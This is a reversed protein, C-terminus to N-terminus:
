RTVLSRLIESLSDPIPLTIIAFTIKLKKEVTRALISQASHEGAKAGWHVKEQNTVQGMHHQAAM